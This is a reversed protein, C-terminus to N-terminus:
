YYQWGVVSNKPPPIYQYAGMDPQGQRANGLVDLAPAGTPTGAHICPSTSKLSLGNDKTQWIGDAGAPNAANVFLPASDINGGGDVGLVSNWHTGSGGSGQIDCHLFSPTSQDPIVSFLQFSLLVPAFKFTTAEPPLSKSPESL